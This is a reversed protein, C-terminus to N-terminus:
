DNNWYKQMESFMFSATWAILVLGTLSELGTLFRLDGVPIIDGFGLTTYTVFSYYACNLLDADVIGQLSGFKELKILLFYAIAFLWIEIIHAVLAGFIGVAVRLRYRITLTPMIISLRSLMEFHVVVAFVVVLTNIIFILLMIENLV